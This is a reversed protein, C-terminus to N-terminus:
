HTTPPPPTPFTPPPSPPPDANATAGSNKLAVTVSASGFAFPVVQYSLTGTPTISPQTTFLSNNNNSVLFQVTESAQNPGPSINTAWNTVTQVAPSPNELTTQDPGPTLASPRM